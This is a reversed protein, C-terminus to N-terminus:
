SVSIINLQINKRFQPYQMQFRPMKAYTSAQAKGVWGTDSASPAEIAFKPKYEHRGSYIKPDWKVYEEGSPEGIAAYGRKYNIGSKTGYHRVHLVSNPLIPLEYEKTTPESKNSVPMNESLREPVVLEVELYSGLKDAIVGDVDISLINGELKYAPSGDPSRGIYYYQKDVLFRICNNITVGNKISDLAHVWYQWERTGPQPLIVEIRSATNGAPWIKKDGLWIEVLPKNNFEGGLFRRQKGNVIIDM